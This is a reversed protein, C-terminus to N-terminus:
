KMVNLVSLYYAGVRLMYKDPFAFQPTEKESALVEIHLSSLVVTVLTISVLKM